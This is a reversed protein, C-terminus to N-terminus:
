YQRTMARGPAAVQQPLQRDIVRRITVVDGPQLPTAEEADFVIVSGRAMRTISISRTFGATGSSGAQMRKVEHVERAAPLAARLEALRDRVVLLESLVQRRFTAEADQARIDLDGSLSRLRSIQATLEWVRSEQAAQHMRLNVEESRRGLGQRLMQSSQEVERKLLDLRNRETIIQENTAAIEAELRPKQEHLLNLQQRLIALQSRLVAQEAAILGADEAGTEAWATAPVSFAEHGDRQAELRAQRVLLGAKQSELQKVREDAALMESIAASMLPEASGFGGAIAV